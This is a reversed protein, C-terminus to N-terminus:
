SGISYQSLMVGAIRIKNKEIPDHVRYYYLCLTDPPQIVYDLLRHQTEQHATPDCVRRRRKVVDQLRQLLLQHVRRGSAAIRGDEVGRELAEVGESAGHLLSEGLSLVDTAVLSYQPSLLTSHYCTLVATVLSYQPSLHTSYICLCHPTLVASSHTPISHPRILLTSVLSDQLSSHTSYKCLCTLATNTSLHTSHISFHTWVIIHLRSHHIYKILPTLHKM